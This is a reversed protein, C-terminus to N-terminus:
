TPSESIPNNTITFDTVGVSQGFVFLRRHMSQAGYGPTSQRCSRNTMNRSVSM